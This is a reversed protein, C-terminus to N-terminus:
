KIYYESTFAIIDKAVEAVAPDYSNRCYVAYEIVPKVLTERVNYYKVQFALDFGHVGNNSYLFSIRDRKTNDADFVVLKYGHRVRFIKTYPTVDKVVSKLFPVGESNGKVGNMVDIKLKKFKESPYIKEPKPQKRFKNSAHYYYAMLDVKGDANKDQIMTIRNKGTKFEGIIVTTVKGISQILYYDEGSAPIPLSSLTSIKIQDRPIYIGKKVKTQLNKGKAFIHQQSFVLAFISFLVSLFLIAKKM